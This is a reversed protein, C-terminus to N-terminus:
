QAASWSPAPGVAYIGVEEGAHTEAAMPVASEQLYAQDPPGSSTAGLRGPFPDTRPDNRVAHRYGPGNGYGLVTYPVGNADTSPAVAGTAPDVDYVLDLIGNGATAEFGQTHSPSRPVAARRAAAAPLRRHQLRPQPRRLRHDAHRAPRRDARRRASPRTSSRRRRDARPVRQGRPPRPRHARRRGDPLLRPRRSAGADGAGRAARHGQRTMETLSPEGGIDTPRDHEYEMHSREFLGLVPLEQPDARQLRRTNWVYTYGRAQFEARLDRGDRAAAARRRGRRRRATPVFFQRGGGFLVDVGDGLRTNYTADGPLAQLAIANENDRNNIHAYTAAPTAHTIRPPASSAWRCAGSSPRSSCRGSASATATTTSTASKPRRCRPRDRGPQHEGRDDDGDDDARQRPHDLRRLLHALAGHLPLQDIVLEGAVGVSYVRTATVTSVGMGDGVFFIVNKARGGRGSASTDFGPENWSRGGVAEVGATITVGCAALALAVGLKRQRM